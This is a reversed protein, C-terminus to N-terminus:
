PDGREPQVAPKRPNRRRGLGWRELVAALTEAKLPKYLCDSLGAQLLHDRDEHLLAATLGVIPVTRNPNDAWQRIRRTAELGDMGPMRIDMLILDYRTHQCADLATQGDTAEDVEAAEGAFVIRALARNVPSDDVVLIRIPERYGLDRAARELDTREAEPRPLQALARPHPTREPEIFEQLLGSEPELREAEAEVGMEAEVEAVELDLEVQFTSGVGAESDVAIRGGMLAVLQRCIALGLGTGGQQRTTSAEIQDFATFIRTQHAPPIGIGTDRVTVRLIVGRDPRSALDARVQIGGRATFKIANDVLNSLIQTLRQDDGIVRAPLDPDVDLRLTLGKARAAPVFLSVTAHLTDRLVFPSRALAVKGAELKSFDLISDIVKVLHEASTMLMRVSEAQDPPLDAQALVSIFGLMGHMPTRIEHSMNALFASKVRSAALAQERAHALETNQRELRELAAMLDVTSKRVRGTLDHRSRELATNTAVLERNVQAFAAILANFASAMARAERVGRAPVRAYRRPTEPDAMHDALRQLPRTIWGLLALLGLGVITAGAAIVALMQHDTARVAAEMASKSLTLVVTGLWEAPAPRDPMATPETPDAVTFPDPHLPDADVRVPAVFVLHRDDELILRAGGLAGELPPLAAWSFPLTGAAVLPEGQRTLIAVGVVNPFDRTADARIRINDPARQILALRSDEALREALTRGNSLLEERFHVNLHDRLWGAIGVALLAIGLLYVLGLVQRLTLPFLSSIARM